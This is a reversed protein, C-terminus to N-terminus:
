AGSRPFTFILVFQNQLSLAALLGALCLAAITCGLRILNQLTASFNQAGHWVAVITLGVWLFGFALSLTQGFRVKTEFFLLHGLIYLTFFIALGVFSVRWFQRGFGFEGRWFMAVHHM